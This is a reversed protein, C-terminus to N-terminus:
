TCNAGKTTLIGGTFVYTNGATVTCTTSVGASGNTNFGTNSRISGSALLAGAGPDTTIIGNGITVGGSAQMRVSEQGSTTGTPTINFSLYAGQASNTLNEAAVGVISALSGTSFAGGSTYGRFSLNGLAENALVQSPSAQSGDARRIVFRSTDGYATFTALLNTSNISSWDQNVGLASIGLSATQSNFVGHVATLSGAGTVTFGPSDYANGSFAAGSNLHIGNTHSGASANIINVSNTGSDIESTKVVDSHYFALGVDWKGNTARVVVAATGLSSVNGDYWGDFGVVAPAGFLVGTWPMDIGAQNQAAIGVATGGDNTATTRGVFFGGYGTHLGSPGSAIGRGYIGVVDNLGNGQVLGVIANSQEVSTSTQTQNVLIGPGFKGDDGSPSTITETRTIAIGPTNITTITAGGLSIATASAGPNVTLAVGTSPAITYNGTLTTTWVPQAAGQGLLVSGLPPQQAEAPIALPLVAAIAAGIYLKRLMTMNM